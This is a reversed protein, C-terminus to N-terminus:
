VESVGLDFLARQIEVKGVVCPNSFSGPNPLKSLFVTPIELSDNEICIM